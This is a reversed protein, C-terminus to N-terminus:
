GRTGASAVIEELVRELQPQWHGLRLGFARAARSCDLVSYCPRRAKTFYESTSVSTLEANNGTRELIAKAFDYWSCSGSATVHYTGVRGLLWRSGCARWQALVQATFDAMSRASTPAGHQDSVVKLPEGARARSLVTRLFNPGRAGYVWSTRFILYRAGSDRIANEGALKTRGYVNLPNPRDTELYPQVHTGDFVYDTSYHVLLIDAIYAEAALVAPAAANIAHASDPEDEAREVATYAGANVVVDVKERRLIDRISESDELDLRYHADKTRETCILEGVPSLSRRLEFGIQGRAGILLIKPRRTVRDPDDM